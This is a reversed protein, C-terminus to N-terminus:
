ITTVREGNEKTPKVNEAENGTGTKDDTTSTETIATATLKEDM